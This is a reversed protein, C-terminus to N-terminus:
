NLPDANKELIYRHISFENMQFKNFPALLSCFIVAASLGQSYSHYVIQTWFRNYNIPVQM